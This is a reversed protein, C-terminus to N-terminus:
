KKFCAANGRSTHEWRGRASSYRIENGCAGGQRCTSIAGDAPPQHEQPHQPDPQPARTTPRSPLPRSRATQRNAARVRREREQAVLRIRRQIRRKTNRWLKKTKRKTWRWAARRQKRVYRKVRTKFTTTRSWGNNARPLGTLPDNPNRYVKHTQTTKRRLKKIWRRVKAM